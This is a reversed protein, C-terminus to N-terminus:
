DIEFRLLLTNFILIGQHVGKDEKKLETGPDVGSQHGAGAPTESQVQLLLGQGEVAVPFWM